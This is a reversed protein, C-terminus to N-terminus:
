PVLDDYGAWGPISANIRRYLEAQQGPAALKDFFPDGKDWHGRFSRAGRLASHPLLGKITEKTSM